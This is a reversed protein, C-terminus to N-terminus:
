ATETAILKENDEGPRACLFGRVQYLPQPLARACRRKRDSRGSALTGVQGVDENSTGVLRHVSVLPAL